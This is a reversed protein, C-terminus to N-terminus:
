SDSTKLYGIWLVLIAISIVILCCAHMFMWFGADGDDKKGAISLKLGRVLNMLLFVNNVLEYVTLVVLGVKVNVYNCLLPEQELKPM